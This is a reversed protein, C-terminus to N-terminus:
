KLEMFQEFEMLVCDEFSDGVSLCGRWAPCDYLHGLMDRIKSECYIM